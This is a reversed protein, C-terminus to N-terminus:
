SAGRRDEGRIGEPDDDEIAGEFGPAHGRKPAEQVVCLGLIYAGVQQRLRPRSAIRHLKLARRIMWLSAAGRNAPGPTQLSFLPLTTMPQRAVINVSTTTTPSAAAGSQLAFSNGGFGTTVVVRRYTRSQPVIVLM